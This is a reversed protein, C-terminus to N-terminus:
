LRAGCCLLCPVPGCPKTSFYMERFPVAPVVLSLLIPEVFNDKEIYRHDCFIDLRVNPILCLDRWFQVSTM